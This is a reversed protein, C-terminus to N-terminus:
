SQIILSGPPLSEKLGDSGQQVACWSKNDVGSFGLRAINSGHGSVFSKEETWADRKLNLVWIRPASAM